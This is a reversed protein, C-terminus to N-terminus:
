GYLVFFFNEYFTKLRPQCLQKQIGLQGAQVTSDIKSWFCFSQSFTQMIKRAFGIKCM